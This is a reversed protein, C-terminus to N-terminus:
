GGYHQGAQSITAHPKYRQSAKVGKTVNFFPTRDSEWCPKEMLMRLKAPQGGTYIPFGYIVGDAEAEKERIVGGQDQPDNYCMAPDGVPKNFGICKKCDICDSLHYDAISIYETEVYGMSEASKLAYKVQESTNANKRPSFSVGLIRVKQPIDISIQKKAM